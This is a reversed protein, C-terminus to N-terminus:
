RPSLDVGPITALRQSVANAKHVATLKVDIEKIWTDIDAFEQGLLVAMAKAESPIAAEQEIAAM